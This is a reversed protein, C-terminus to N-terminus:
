LIVQAVGSGDGCGLEPGIKGIIMPTTPPIIAIPMIAKM